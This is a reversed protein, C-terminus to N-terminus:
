ESGLFHVLKLGSQQRRKELSNGSQSYSGESIHNWYLCSLCWISLYIYIWIYCHKKWLGYIIVEYWLCLMDIYRMFIGYFYGMIDWLNGMLIGYIDWIGDVPPSWRHRPRRGGPRRHRLRPPASSPSAPPPPASGRPPRPASRPARHRPPSPKAM